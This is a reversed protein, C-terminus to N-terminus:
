SGIYEWTDNDEMSYGGSEFVIKYGLDVPNDSKENRVFGVLLQWETKIEHTEKNKYLALKNISEADQFSMEEAGVDAIYRNVVNLDDQSIESKECGVFAFLLVLGMILLLYLFVKQKM